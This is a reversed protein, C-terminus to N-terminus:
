NPDRQPVITTTFPGTYSEANGRTSDVQGVSINFNYTMSEGDNLHYNWTGEPPRAPTHAQGNITVSSRPDVSSESNVPVGVFCDDFNDATGAAPNVGTNGQYYNSMIRGFSAGNSGAVTVTMPVNGSFDTNLDASDISFLVVQADPNYETPVGPITPVAGSFVTTGNITATVTVPSDGYGNGMFQFTRNQAM